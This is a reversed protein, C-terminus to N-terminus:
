TNGAEKKTLGFVEFAEHHDQVTDFIPSKDFGRAARIVLLPLQSCVVIGWWGSQSVLFLCIDPAENSM